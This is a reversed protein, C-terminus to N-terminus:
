PRGAFERVLDPYSDARCAPDLELNCLRVSVTEDTNDCWVVRAIWLESRAARDDVSLVLGNIPPFFNGTNQLFKSTYRALKGPKVAGSIMLRGCSECIRTYKWCDKCTRAAVRRSLERDFNDAQDQPILGAARRRKADQDSM